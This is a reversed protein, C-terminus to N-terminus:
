DRKLELRGINKVYEAALARGNEASLFDHDFYLEALLLGLALTAFTIFRSESADSTASLVAVIFLVLAILLEFWHGVYFRAKLLGNIKQRAESVEGAAALLGNYLAEEKVERIEPLAYIHYAMKRFAANGQEYDALSRKEFLGLYDYVFGHLQTFWARIHDGGSLNKGLHYIRRIKNLELAVTEKLRERRSIALAAFIGFIAAFLVSAAVDFRSFAALPAVAPISYALVYAVIVALGPRVYKMNFEHYRINLHENSIM